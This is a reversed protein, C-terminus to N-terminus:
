WGWGWGWVHAHRARMRHFKAEDSALNAGEWIDLLVSDFVRLRHRAYEFVDGTVIEVRNGFEEKLPDGFFKAVTPNEEVVTVRKVQRRRELVKRAFYGLGLGGILVRGRARRIGPRFTFMESPTISMMTRMHIEGFGLTLIPVNTDFAVRGLVGNRGEVYKPRYMELFQGRPLERAYFHVGEGIRTAESPRPYADVLFLPADKMQPCARRVWAEFGAGGFLIDGRTYKFNESWRM